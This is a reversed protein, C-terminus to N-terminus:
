DLGRTVEIKDWKLGRKSENEGANERKITNVTLDAEKLM